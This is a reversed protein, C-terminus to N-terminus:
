RYEREDPLKEIRFLNERVPINGGEGPKEFFTICADSKVAALVDAAANVAIRNQEAATFARCAPCSCWATNAGRDPWLHFVQAECAAQFLKEATKNVAVITGPNTPCFHHDKKRRGGEMRFFDRHLFFSCRPLLSSLDRGGAEMAIGYEAAINQLENLKKATGKSAFTALPFILADYRRRAAWAVFIESNKLIAKVEKAGAVFRRWPAAVIDTGDYNSPEFVGEDVGSGNSLTFVRLNAVQPSPLIEQGPEPWSIGLAALFSYIGNCLGRASEGRIEIREPEAKWYFGNRQSGAGESKLVITHVANPPLTSHADLLAPSKHILGEQLGGLLGIYRSLDEAAKRIEPVDPPLLIIWEKSAYFNAM